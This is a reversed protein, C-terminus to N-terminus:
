VVIFKQDESGLCFTDGQKLLHGTMPKLKTGNLYTGSLSSLDALYLGGNQVLLKCHSDGIGPTGIPYILNCSANTGILVENRKIAFTKGNHVGSVCQLRLSSSLVSSGTVVSVNAALQQFCKQILILIIWWFIVIKILLTPLFFEGCFANWLGHGLCSIVFLILVNKQKLAKWDFTHNKMNLATATTYTACYLTHSALASCSRKWLIDLMDAMFPRITFIWKFTTWDGSNIIEVAWDPNELVYISYYGIFKMMGYNYVYQATEFATFGAGVAAGIVLGTMGYIKFKPNRSFYRLLLLAAIFKAPEETLPAFVASGTKDFIGLLFTIGLSLVGGVLFSLMLQFFSINRPANMEWFLVMLTIPVICPPLLFFLLNFSSYSNFIYASIGLIISLIVGGVFVRSFLWPTQWKQLMSNEDIATELSTGTVLTAEMEDHTHKKFVGSFLDIWTIKNQVRLTKEFLTLQAM